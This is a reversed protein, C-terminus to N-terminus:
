GRIFVVREWLPCSVLESKIPIILPLFGVPLDADLVLTINTIQTLLFPILDKVRAGLSFQRIHTPIQDQRFFGVCDENLTLPPCLSFGDMLIMYELKGATYEFVLGQMTFFINGAYKYSCSVKRWYGREASLAQSDDEKGLYWELWVREDFTVNRLVTCLNVVKRHIELIVPDSNGVRSFAINRSNRFGFGETEAAGIAPMICIM